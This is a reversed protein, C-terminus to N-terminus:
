GDFVSPERYQAGYGLADVLKSPCALREDGYDHSRHFDQLAGAEFSVEIRYCSYVRSPSSHEGVGSAVFVDVIVDEDRAGERFNYFVPTGEDDAFYDPDERGDWHNVAASLRDLLEDPTAVSMPSTLVDYITTEAADVQLWMASDVPDSATSCATVSALVGAVAIAAAARMM